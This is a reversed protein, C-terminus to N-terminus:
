EDRKLYYLALKKDIIECWIALGLLTSLDQRDIVYNSEDKQRENIEEFLEEPTLSRDKLSDLLVKYAGIRSFARGHLFSKAQNQNNQLLNTFIEGEKTLRLKGGSHDTLGLEQSMRAYDGGSTELGADQLFGTEAGAPCAALYLLFEPLRSVTLRPLSAGNRDMKKGSSLGRRKTSLVFSFVGDKRYQLDLQVPSNESIRICVKSCKNILGGLTKIYSAIVFASISHEGSEITVAKSPEGIFSYDGSTAEISFRKGDITLKLENSIASATKVLKSFESADIEAVSEYRFQKPEPLDYPDQELFNIKFRASWKKIAELVLGNEDITMSLSDASMLSPLFRSFKSVDIGFSTKNYSERNSFFSKKLLLDIYCFDDPDISKIRVGNQDVEFHVKDVFKSVCELLKGFINPESFILKL